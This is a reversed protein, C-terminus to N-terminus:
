SAAKVIFLVLLGEGQTPEVPEGNNDSLLLKLPTGDSILPGNMSIQTSFVGTAYEPDASSLGTNLIAGGAPAVMGEGYLSAYAGDDFTTTPVSLYSGIMITDGADPDYVDLSPAPDAAFDTFDFPVEVRVFSQSGGGADVYAKTAVENNDVPDPLNYIRHQRADLDGKLYPVFEDSM